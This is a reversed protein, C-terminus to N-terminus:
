PIPRITATATIRDNKPTGLDRPDWTYGNTDTVRDLKGNVNSITIENVSRMDSNTSFRPETHDYGLVPVTDGEELEKLDSKKM